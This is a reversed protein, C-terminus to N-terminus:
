FKFGVGGVEQQGEKVGFAFDPMMNIAQKTPKRIILMRRM